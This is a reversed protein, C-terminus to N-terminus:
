KEGIGSKFIRKPCILAEQEFNNCLIGEEHLKLGAYILSQGFNWRRVAGPTDDCNSIRWATNPTDTKKEGM